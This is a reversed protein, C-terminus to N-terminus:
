VLINHWHPKHNTMRWFRSRIVGYMMTTIVKTLLHFLHNSLMLTNLVRHLLYIQINRDNARGQSRTDCTRKTMMLNNSDELMLVHWHLNALEGTTSLMEQHQHMMISSINFLAMHHHSHTSGRAFNMVMTPAQHNNM